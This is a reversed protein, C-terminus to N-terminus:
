RQEEPEEEIPEEEEPISRVQDTTKTYEIIVQITYNSSRWGTGQQFFIGNGYMYLRSTYASDDNHSGMINKVTSSILLGNLSVVSDLNAITGVNVQAANENTMTIVKRYIPKNDIWKKDTLTETTSYIDKKSDLYEFNNNLNSATLPTSTDPLDKFEILSM